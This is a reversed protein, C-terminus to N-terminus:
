VLKFPDLKGLLILNRQSITINTPCFDFKEWIMCKTKKAPNNFGVIKLWDRVRKKGRIVIIHMDAWGEKSAKQMNVAHNINLKDLLISLDGIIKRSAVRIYIRPYTNFNRKFKSYKNGRKMFTICGDCDAFGRIFSAIIMRDNSEFIVKPVEVNYTKRKSFGLSRFFDVIKKNCIYFGYVSNSKKEHAVVNKNFAKSFLPCVVEDYYKRDEIIHGWMCIYNDQLCGDAAFMGLVESLELTINMLYFIFYIKYIIPKVSLHFGTLPM